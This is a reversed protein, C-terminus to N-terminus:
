FVVPEFVYRLGVFGTIINYVDNDTRRERSVQSFRVRSTITVNEFIEYESTGIVNYSEVREDGGGFDDVISERRNWSPFLRLTWNRIPRYKVDLSVSDVISSGSGANASESRRYRISGTHLKWDGSLEVRAFFSTNTDTEDSRFGPFEQESRILTPGGQFSFLLYPRLRYTM